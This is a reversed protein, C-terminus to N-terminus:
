VYLKRTTAGAGSRRYYSCGRYYHLTITKGPAKAGPKKLDSRFLKTRQVTNNLFAKFSM